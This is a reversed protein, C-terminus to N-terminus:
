EPVRVGLVRFSRGRPPAGLRVRLLIGATRPKRRNRSRVILLHKKSGAAVYVRGYGLKLGAREVIEFWSSTRGSSGMSTSVSSRSLRKDDATFRLHNFYALARGLMQCPIKCRRTTDPSFAAIELVDVSQDSDVDKTWDSVRVFALM